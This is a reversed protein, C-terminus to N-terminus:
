YVTDSCAARVTLCWLSIWLGSGYVAVMVVSSVAFKIKRIATPDNKMLRWQSRLVGFWYLIPVSWLLLDFLAWVLNGLLSESFDKHGLGAGAGAGFAWLTLFVVATVELAQKSAKREPKEAVPEQIGAPAPPWVTRATDERWKSTRELAAQKASSIDTAPKQRKAIPAAPASNDSDNNM